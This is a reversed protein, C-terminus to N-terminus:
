FSKFLIFSSLDFTICYSNMLHKSIELLLVQFYKLNINEPVCFSRQTFLLAGSTEFRHATFTDFNNAKLDYEGYLKIWFNEESFKFLINFTSINFRKVLLFSSRDYVLVFILKAIDVKLIFLM